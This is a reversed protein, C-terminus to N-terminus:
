RTLTEVTKARDILWVGDEKVLKFEFEQASLTNDATMELTSTLTVTASKKEEDFTVIMDHFKFELGGKMEFVYRAASAIDSRGSLTHSGVARISVKIECDKTFFRPLKEMMLGRAINGADAKISVTEAVESLRSRVAADEGTPSSKTYAFYGAGALAAALILQLLFKM